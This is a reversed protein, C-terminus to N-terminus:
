ERGVSEIMEIWEDHHREMEDAPGTMKIFLSSREQPFIAGLMTYGPRETKPGFMGGDLYTGSLEVLTVDIGNVTRDTVDAEGPDGNDGVVQESWRSINDDITGSAVSLAAVCGDVHLEASRMTNSPAVSEWGEPIEFTLGAGSVRGNGALRDALNEAAADQTRIRDALDRASGASKGLMSQPEDALQAGGGSSSSEDCGAPGLLAAAVAAVVIKRATEM